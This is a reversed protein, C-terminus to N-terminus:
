RGRRGAAWTEVAIQVDWCGLPFSEFGQFSLHTRVLRVNEEELLEYLRLPALYVELAQPPLAHGHHLVQVLREYRLPFRLAKAHRVLCAMLPQTGDFEGITASRQLRQHIYVTPSTSPQSGNADDTKAFQQLRRHNHCTSPQLGNFDHNITTSWQIQQNNRVTSVMYPQVQLLELTSNRTRKRRLPRFCVGGHIGIAM